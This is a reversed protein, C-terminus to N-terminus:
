EGAMLMPQPARYYQVGDLVGAAHKLSSRDVSALGELEALAKAPSMPQVDPPPRGVGAKRRMASIIDADSM